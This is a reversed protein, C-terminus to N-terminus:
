IAMDNPIITKEIDFTMRVPTKNGNKTVVIDQQIPFGPPSYPLKFINAYPITVACKYSRFHKKNDSIIYERCFQGNINGVFDGQAAQYLTNEKSRLPNHDDRIYISAEGPLKKYLLKNKNDSLYTTDNSVWYSYKKAIVLRSITKLEEPLFDTSLTESNTGLVQLSTRNIDIVYARQGFISLSILLNILGVIFAREM